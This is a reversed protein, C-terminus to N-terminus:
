TYDDSSVRLMLQMQLFHLHPRTPRRLKDCEIYSAKLDYIVRRATVKWFRKAAAIGVTAPERRSLKLTREIAKLVPKLSATAVVQGLVRTVNIRGYDAFPLLLV